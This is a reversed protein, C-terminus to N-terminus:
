MGDMFPRMMKITATYANAHQNFGKSFYQVGSVVKWSVLVQRYVGRVQGVCKTM